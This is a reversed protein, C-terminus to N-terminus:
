AATLNNAKRYEEETLNLMKMVERDEAALTAVNGPSQQNDLASKGLIPSMAALLETVSTLGEDTACLAEYQARQAPLIKKATLAEDLLATVKEGRGASKLAELEATTAGLTRLTEAHVAPDVRKTTINAIASLCAAEDAAEVLGLAAAIKKLMFPEEQNEPDASALAAMSLAPAAVLGASHLWSVKGAADAKLGPSIYKHTRAKLVKLGEELWEVRGYLGDPRAALEKIWGIAPAADGFMAKKITAHDLDVPVDVKEAVYRAVLAEPNLDFSRGDRATFKGRPALQVWEPGADPMVDAADLASVDYLAIGTMMGAVSTADGALCVIGALSSICRSAWLASPSSRKAMCRCQGIGFAHM